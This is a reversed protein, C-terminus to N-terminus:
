SDQSAEVYARSFSMVWINVFFVFCAVTVDNETMAKEKAEWIKANKKAGKPYVRLDKPRGM